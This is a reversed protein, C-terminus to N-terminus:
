PRHGWEDRLKRQWEVPDVGLKLWGTEKKIERWSSKEEVDPLLIILARHGMPDKFPEMPIVVGGDIRGEIAAYM